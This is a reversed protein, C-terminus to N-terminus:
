VAASSAVMTPANMTPDIMPASSASLNRDRAKKAGASPHRNAAAYASEVRGASRELDHSTPSVCSPQYGAPLWTFASSRWAKVSAREACDPAGGPLLWAAIACSWTQNQDVSM